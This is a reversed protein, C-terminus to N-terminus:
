FCNVSKQKINVFETHNLTTSNGQSLLNRLERIGNERNEPTERLEKFAVDQSFPTLDELEFRLVYDGLQVSPLADVESLM